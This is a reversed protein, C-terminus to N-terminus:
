RERSNAETSRSAIASPSDTLEVLRKFLRFELGNGVTINSIEFGAAYDGGPAKASWRCTAELIFTAFEGFEDASVLLTKNEGVTSQMGRVGIGTESVDRITGRLHPNQFDHITVEFNLKNRKSQRLRDLRLEESEWSFRDCIEDLSIGGSSVIMMLAWRLGRRTLRYREMLQSDNLGSRIEKVIQSAKIVTARPMAGAKPLVDNMAVGM